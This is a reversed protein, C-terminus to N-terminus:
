RFYRTVVRDHRPRVDKVVQAFPVCEHALGELVAKRVRSQLERFTPDGSLDIRLALPNVFYGM